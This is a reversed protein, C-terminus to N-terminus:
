RWKMGHMHEIQEKFRDLAVHFNTVSDDAAFCSFVCTNHVANPTDINVIQFSMKFTGGGKDGGIKIWVESAPIFGEHWTLRWGQLWSKLLLLMQIESKGKMKM